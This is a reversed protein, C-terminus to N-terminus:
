IWNGFDGFPAAIIQCGTVRHKHQNTYPFLSEYRLCEGVQLEGFAPLARASNAFDPLQAIPTARFQLPCLASRILCLPALLFPRTSM